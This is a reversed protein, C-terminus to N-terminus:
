FGIRHWQIGYQVVVLCWSWSSCFRLVGLHPLAQLALWLRGFLHLLSVETSNTSDKPKQPTSIKSPWDSWPDVFKRPSGRHHWTAAELIEWWWQWTQQLRTHTTYQLHKFDIWNYTYEGYVMTQRFGSIPTKKRQPPWTYFALTAAPQEIGHEWHPSPKLSAAM